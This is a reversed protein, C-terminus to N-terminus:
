SNDRINVVPRGAFEGWLRPRQSSLWGTGSGEIGDVQPEAVLLLVKKLAFSLPVVQNVRGLHDKGPSFSGLRERHGTRIFCRVGACRETRSLFRSLSGILEVRRSSTLFFMRM